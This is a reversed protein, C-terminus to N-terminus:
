LGRASRGRRGAHPGRLLASVRRRASLGHDPRLCHGEHRKGAPLAAPCRQLPFMVCRLAGTEDKLTFYHHGSPYVKSNSLEGRIFLANLREDTDLMNKIYENVDSVAFITQEM